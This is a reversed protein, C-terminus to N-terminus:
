PGCSDLLSAAMHLANTRCQEGLAGRADANMKERNALVRAVQNYNLRLVAKTAEPVSACREIRHMLLRYTTCEDLPDPPLEARQVAGSLDEALTARQAPPLDPCGDLEAASKAATRCRIAAAPWVDVRCRLLEIKELAAAATPALHRGATEIPLAHRVATTCGHDKGSKLDYVEDIAASLKTIQVGTLQENCRDSTARTTSSTFCAIAADSWADEACHRKSIAMLEPLMDDTAGDKAKIGDHELSMVRAVAASCRIRTLAAPDDVPAAPTVPPVPAAPPTVVKAATPAPSATVAASGVADGERAQTCGAACLAM